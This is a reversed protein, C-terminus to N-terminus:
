GDDNDDGDNVDNGDDNVDGNIDNENMGYWMESEM